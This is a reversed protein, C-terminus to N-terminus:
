IHRPVTRGRDSYCLTSWFYIFWICQLIESGAETLYYGLWDSNSTPLYLDCQKLDLIFFLFPGLSPLLTSPSFIHNSFAPFFILLRLYIIVESSMVRITFLLSSSFLRKIYTFSTLSFAPKFSLMWFIFIMADPGMAEHCISPSVISLSLNKNEQARFDSCITAVAM